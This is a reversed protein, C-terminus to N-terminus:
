YMPPSINQKELSFSKEKLIENEKKLDENETNTLTISEQLNAV